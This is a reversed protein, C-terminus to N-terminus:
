DTIVSTIYTSESIRGAVARVSVIQGVNKENYVEESVDVHDIKDDGLDILFSWRVPHHITTPVVVKGVQQMIMTTHEPTYGKDLIEGATTFKKRFSSDILVFIGGTIIIGLIGILVLLVPPTIAMVPDNSFKLVSDLLMGGIGTFVDM